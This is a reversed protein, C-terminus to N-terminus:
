RISQKLISVEEWMRENRPQRIRKEGRKGKLGRKLKRRVRM